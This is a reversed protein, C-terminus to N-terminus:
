SGGGSGFLARPAEVMAIQKSRPDPCWADLADLLDDSHVPRGTETHPWDSGWLCSHPNAEVFAAALPLLDRWPPRAHSLRYPASLKVFCTGERVLSVLARPAPADPDTRGSRPRGMHDILVPVGLRAILPRMDGVTEIEVHMEVHWGLARLVPLWPSVAEPELGGRNVLNCRVGRVGRRHLAELERATSGPAPVAVGLLRGDARDLAALMCRNDFGYVSPQVLVGRAFGYRDLEQLYTELPAPLPEYSRGPALPFRGPDEIVHAHCDWAGEPVRRSM